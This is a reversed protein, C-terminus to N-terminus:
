VAKGGHRVTEIEGASEVARFDDHEIHELEHLYAEQQVERCLCSNLVITHSGDKNNKVFSRVHSPLDMLIVQTEDM